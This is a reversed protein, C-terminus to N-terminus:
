RPSASRRLYDVARKLLGPPSNKAAVRVAVHPGGDPLYRRLHAAIRAEAQEPTLGAVPVTGYFGLSISGDPRVLREGAIPRGPLAPRADVALVDPSFIRRAQSRDWGLLGAIIAVVLLIVGLSVRPRKM